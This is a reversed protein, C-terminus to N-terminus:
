RLKFRRGAKNMSRERGTTVELTALTALLKKTFTAQSAGFKEGARDCWQDFERYVEDTWRGNLQTDDIGEEYVWRRVVDNDIRVAEVEAAMDPIVTLANRSILEPLEMMGLLAIRQLNSPKSMVEAMRPDYGPLGPAFYARFPIFALRRFIGETTDALRPVANMSFLLTACPKFKFGKVGKVDTQIQEGTVLKKFMSLDKGRLFEDPIDDGINAMKGVIHEAQFREGLTAIDMASSNDPGLLSQIVRLYTSKGNSANERGNTGARGILFAAQQTVQRSCMCMGIIERMAKATNEDHGALTDIFRDADGYPADLDLDIPLAGIIFMDPNPEVTKAKEVDWTCNNFQVYYRGDFGNDASVHPACAQIYKFAEDRVSSKIGDDYGIFVREFATKGMEWHKGTWISPAGDIHCAHNVDMVARALLNHLVRGKDDKIIAPATSPAAKTGPKGISPKEGIFTGEGDHGPGKKCAQKVIRAIDSKPMPPKCRERNAIEIMAAIADDPYGRSRLSCGYRYLTDDRGGKGITEPLEFSSTQPRDEDQGGNRQVHDLLDYVNGNAHAVGCEWPASGDLWEYPKGNPHISPPAVIYGGDSRVDVGLEKNVSPRINTRDTYYLYHMGGRGTLATATSPLAGHTGEWESLTYTGDEGIEEDIDFDLVLLGHSPTGCTIGINYDAQSWLREIDEPNDTWNNLGGAAIPRKGRPELPFVAFGHAAYWLAAEKLTSPAKGSM